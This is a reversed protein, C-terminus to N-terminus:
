KVGEFKKALDDPTSPMEDVVLKVEETRDIVVINGAGYVGLKYAYRTNAPFDSRMLVFRDLQSRVAPNSFFEAEYKAQRKNGEATFFVLIPKNSKEAITQAAGIDFVWSLDSAGPVGATAPPALPPASEGAGPVPPPGALPPLAGTPPLGPM